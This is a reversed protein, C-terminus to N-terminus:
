YDYLIMIGVATNGTETQLVYEPPYNSLIDKVKIQQKLCQTTSGGSTTNARQVEVTYYTHNNIDELPYPENWERTYPLDATTLMPTYSTQFDWSSPFLADDKFVLRYYKNEYPIHYITFGGFYVDPQTVNVVTSKTHPTGSAYGTMTVTYTGTKEYSHTANKSESWMGDGFDWKYSDCGTSSNDFQYMLPSLRTVTYDLVIQQTPTPTPTPDPTPAPTPANKEACSCLIILAAILIHKKMITRKKYDPAFTCIIKSM